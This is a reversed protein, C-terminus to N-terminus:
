SVLPHPVHHMQDFFSLRLTKRRAHSQFPIPLCRYPMHQVHPNSILIQSFFFLLSDRFMIVQTKLISSSRGFTTFCACYHLITCRYRTHCLSVFAFPLLLLLSDWLSMNCLQNSVKWYIECFIKLLEKTPPKQCFDFNQFHLKKQSTEIKTKM